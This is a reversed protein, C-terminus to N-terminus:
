IKRMRRLNKDIYKDTPLLSHQIRWAYHISDMVDKNKEEVLKKQEEVIEKQSEIIKKQKQTVRFRNFIFAAFVLILALGGYLSYQKNVESKLEAAAIKKGEHM